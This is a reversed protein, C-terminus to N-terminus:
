SYGNRESLTFSHYIAKLENNTAFFYKDDGGGGVGKYFPTIDKAQAWKSPGLPEWGSTFDIVVIPSIIAM